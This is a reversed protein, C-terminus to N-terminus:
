SNWDQNMWGVAQDKYGALVKAHDDDTARATQLIFGGAYNESALHRFVDEFRAAGEGLPVTTGGIARDKIHVHVIRSGYAAFEAAPDFGLAASNGIDYTLGYTGQPYTAIFSALREPAFDCEFAVRIQNRALVPQVIDLGSKLAAEDEDTEIAGDDVLPVVLIKIRAAACAEVVATFDELLGHQLAGKTKYYPAQMVCDLTASTVKIKNRRSLGRIEARGERSMLPNNMLGIHDLTWEIQDFGLDAALVFEEQWCTAPFAQIKGDVLPSLRGQMFGPLKLNDPNASM